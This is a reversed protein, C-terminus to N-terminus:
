KEQILALYAAIDRMRTQIVEEPDCPMDLLKDIPAPKHGKRQPGPPPGQRCGWIPMESSDHPASRGDIRKAIVTPSFLGYNKKALV